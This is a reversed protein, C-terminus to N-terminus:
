FFKNLSTPSVSLTTPGVHSTLDQKIPGCVRFEDSPTIMWFGVRQDSSIWGHVKNDGDEMSYMYKDDVQGKLIPNGPNILHVAEKYALPSAAGDTIDRDAASPMIKQRDDSVAMFDFGRRDIEDNLVNAFGKYKIGTILGQPSSFTVQIIGNDVVVQNPAINNLTVSPPALKQGPKIINLKNRCYSSRSTRSHVCQLLFMLVFVQTMVRGVKVGPAANEMEKALESFM